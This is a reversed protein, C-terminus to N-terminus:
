YQYYLTFHDEHFSGDLFVAHESLIRFGCKQHVSLSKINTKAIHSYLKGSGGKQLELLVAQILLSACGKGRSEPATELASLLLGDDYIELRLAAKYAGDESWVAYRSLKDSFFVKLYAYFDQEAYIIQLNEHLRSYRTRGYACNTEAYIEMLQRFNVDELKDIMILM